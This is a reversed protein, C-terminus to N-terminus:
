WLVNQDEAVGLVADLEVPARGPLRISGRYSGAPQLFRSRVVGLNRHEAHLAFPQFELAVAGCASGMRWPLLPRKPDGDIRGEGVPVLDGELWVACEAEGNFGQVLNVGVAAGQRTRGLLFAWRWATRRPLIGQTYDTGGLARDLLLRDRGLRVVGDAQLLMRKETANAGGGLPSLDAVASLPPPAFRADLVADIALAPSEVMLRYASAGGPRVLSARLGPGVFRAYCGEGARDGVRSLGPVGLSSVRALMGQGPAALFAFASAAYGLDVIAAACLREPTALLVYVWRKHRLWGLRGRCGRLDVPPLPGVYRGRLPRGAADVVSPPPPGLAAM